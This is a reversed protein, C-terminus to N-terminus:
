RTKEILGANLQELKKRYLKRAQNFFEIIMPQRYDPYTWPQIQFSKNQFILHLDGFIGQGLYLRHAYDKTTALVVKSISLYGPDINVIRKTGGSIIQEIRNTTRKIAPLTEPEILPEFTILVKELGAGMEAQYYDTFADFDFLPSQKEVTGFQNELHAFVEKLDVRATFTIAAFLLVPPHAKIEGM